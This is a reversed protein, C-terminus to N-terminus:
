VPHASPEGIFWDVAPNSQSVIFDVDRAPAGFAFGAPSHDFKGIQFITNKPDELAPASHLVSAVPLTGLLGAQLSRKCSPRMM